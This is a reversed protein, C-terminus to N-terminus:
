KSDEESGRNMVDAIIFANYLSELVILNKKLLEKLVSCSDQFVDEVGEFRGGAEEITINISAKFSMISDNKNIIIQGNPLELTYSM